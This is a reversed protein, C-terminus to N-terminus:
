HPPKLKSTMKVIEPRLMDERIHAVKFFHHGHFCGDTHIWM